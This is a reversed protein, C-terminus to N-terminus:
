RNGSKNLGLASILFDAIRDPENLHLTPVPCDPLPTDAAVALLDKDPWPTSKGLAARYVGLRPFPEAKFGEILVLDVPLLRNLLAELSAPRRSFLAFSGGTTLIVEQAGAEAHVYSDKGPKDLVVNHHAHKITSVSLGRASLLPILAAILTTKGSGSWGSVALIKM